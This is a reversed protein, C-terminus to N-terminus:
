ILIVLRFYRIRGIYGGVVRVDREREERRERERPGVGVGLVVLFVRGLEEDDEYKELNLALDLM